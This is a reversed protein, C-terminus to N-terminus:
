YIFPRMRFGLFTKVQGKDMCSHRHGEPASESAAWPWLGWSLQLAGEGGGKAGGHQTRAACGDVHGGKGSLRGNRGLLGLQQM